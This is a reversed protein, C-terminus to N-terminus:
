YRGFTAGGNTMLTGAPRASGIGARLKRPRHPARLPVVVTAGDLPVRSRCRRSFIIGRDLRPHPALLSCRRQERGAGREDRMRRRSAPNRLPARWDSETRVRAARMRM